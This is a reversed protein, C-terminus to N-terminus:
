IKVVVKLGRGSDAQLLELEGHHIQVVRDVISLGIGCGTVQHNEARYFREMVRARDEQSIGPGNDEITLVTKDGQQLRISVQGGEPTYAIANTLLNRVLLRLSDAHGQIPRIDVDAYDLEIQKNIALPSLLACEEVIVASLDVDAFESAILEPELRALTLLQEILHTTRDVGNIVQELSEIEQERNEAGKALEAHLRIAALPTRLEHAADSTVRKERALTDELRALLQNLANKITVIESYRYDSQILDLNDGSRRNIQAALLQLPKLGKDISLYLVVSLALVLFVFMYLLDNSVKVILDNRVDLREATICRYSGNTSVLSFTRWNYGDIDIDNFGEAKDSLPELPANYSKVLLNGVDDWIQFALKSEYAHAHETELENIADQFELYMVALGSEDLYDQIQSFGYNVNQAQVLSLIMRSSRALQADFLEWTENRVDQYGLWSTGGVLMVSVIILRFLLHSRISKTM